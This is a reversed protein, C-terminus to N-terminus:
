AARPKTPPEDRFGLKEAKTETPTDLAFPIAGDDDDDPTYNVFESDPYPTAQARPYKSGVWAMLRAIAYVILGYAVIILITWTAMRGALAWSMEKM